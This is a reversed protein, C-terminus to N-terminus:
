KITKSDNLNIFYKKVYADAVNWSLWSYSNQEEMFDHKRKIFIEKPSATNTEFTADAGSINLLPLLNFIDNNAELVPLANDSLTLLFPVDLHIINKRALNYEAIGKDWQICSAAVLIIIAFWANIRLLYYTTKLQQIKIFVTILGFLVLVLFILVGIRKYALGMHTIYYYDRFLVSIVLVMNQVLWAYAGWRLWKNKKYFNLNGRFFFLLLVMALVISFILMGAGDHVYQALNMTSKYKFGFWVYVVDICNIFLLLINLFVLSIIATKNENKLAIMGDAFKGMFLSILQFWSSQKWKILDTKYRRLNDQKSNDNKPFYVSSSKLILGGTVFFGLLLFWFRPWSFWTFFQNVFHQIAVISDNIFNDFISNSFKYLMFFTLLLLLPIILFRITKSVTNFNVKNKKLLLVNSFFSPVVMLYNTFVSGIAYWVSRHQYQIFAVVLLLTTSFALKSLITNQIIVAAITILHAVLLWKIVVNKFSNAYLFIVASIIFLDFLFTNIGMKQQWFIINFLLTGIAILLLKAASSKM